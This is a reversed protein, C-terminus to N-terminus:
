KWHDRHAALLWLWPREWHLADWHARLVSLSLLLARTLLWSFKYFFSLELGWWSKCLKHEPYWHSLLPHAKRATGLCPGAAVPNQGAAMEMCEPRATPIFNTTLPNTYALDQFNSWCSDIITAFGGHISFYYQQLISLHSCGMKLRPPNM